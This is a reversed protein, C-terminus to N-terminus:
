RNQLSRGTGAHLSVHASTPSWTRLGLTAYPTSASRSLAVPLSSPPFASMAKRSLFTPSCGAKQVPFSNCPHASHSPRAASGPKVTRTGPHLVRVTEKHHKVNTDSYPFSIGRRSKSSICYRLVGSPRRVAHGGVMLVEMRRRTWKSIGGVDDM